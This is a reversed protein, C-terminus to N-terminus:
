FCSTGTRSTGASDLGLSGEGCDNQARILYFFTEGADPNDKDVAFTDAPDDSEVCVATDFDGAATGAFGRTRLVDYSVGNAGAPAGWTLISLGQWEVGSVTNPIGSGGAGTCGPLYGLRSLTSWGDMWNDGPAFAGKFGAAEFFGDNPTARNTTLLASGDAPRPDISTIPNPVTPSPNTTRSLTRIPLASACTRYVNDLAANSFLGNDYHVKGTDGGFATADGVPVAGGNGFCWFENDQLELQFASAPGTQFADITYPTIARQGSTLNDTGTTSGGEILIPAGGFDLFASNYWRGGANDRFHLASNRSADTFAKQGHGIMTANYFTPIAFPLSGDPSNGGDQEAGKDSKDAGPTGQMVFIYQGKGRFGEDYDISDDGPAIVAVNKVGVTGGFFEVGDDKNQFVEVHRIDTERGVAGLTLGNIENDASLNFGGYRISIYSLSGSDDDDDGGNGYLGLGGAATLGEIQVERAANAGGATNNAVYTEGLVILGGWQATLGLANLATDYPPTGANGRVNDDFLDTFVIPADFTGQADIKSGRTIVLTGPDNADPASEGEGRIVTGPEITLTAGNTVYVVETLVYDNDATWTRSTTINGAVQVTGTPFYGLRDMNTWGKAWNSDGFAGKYSAPEFFGDNPAVRNTALLPSGAAPRPDLTTVPNPVTPSPNTTRNLARIPLATACSRYVNDLSGTTFLGNNYHVKGTDGGFATADGVPVAGGNGFCWFENDQLELQFASAPGTQFADITYATIARQGSTLNDTGTTSGGEILIPAGGFDLFASNYYRGGANDRFHLATNRSADTFAKQGHGIMTVNYFTPIAFPLSGDPSNGGDQEAGKDSKDAGPTGQMVFIFQGKGRFGEDYDISDDGPAFVVINKVGVTGGFFEVGDDKNQFVEIHDIDTQRGVAGLTLGNIENDASLNFGGYRISVYRLVGSDSDDDGGNGYLGLGGAATLGEIQVERAANAGGATNNAVYTEGLVILGGWQATLGLANLQSDYPPTGTSDGINDDLLDTFVIPNEATGLANIKSGRTIVLTGPDNADPASEGEGRIVTGPEITLTAGNTVYIVQTLIYENNATWTTSTTINSTVQVTGSSSGPLYGLRDLNTWGSLWLDGESFAGKYPAPKFFGDAPPTRDTTLLPSGPGPRPDITTVPDPVTPSPAATRQLSRIPLPDTCPLYANQLSGNSFLGNDYHVKGTDGGFATADGVPVAGGNGFCWFENDQLELQFASAPGTQFADITYPTIARQGSTLNDTGTTSGGEILIPAGGFDLFASNYYRGGANDRFHLATNRAKDTYSKQGHGVMTVNYFTPIAFPLSGDPSNGGDQEAGKDSKDAGPTGQMVFIFQGKGRFGEDYDISDDGPAVVAIHQVGVTGGFFEVGDDKNQFVEVHNINTERGVAGLTLGNIENDASLNFGGYRISVYSITGSDDDDDGGNGYLGLGGAATLGEIQVERAANPGAATNNAVYTEGLVILGGWQATLGLANLASDYPPTGANGGVNDDLLDTFVIPNDRNGFAQIKSGRTIVLTGPDNADPASEGEGRIVTGPEITLTAGNTVYIVDTLIYENDATWTESVTVDATVLITAAFASPVALGLACAVAAIRGAAKLFTGRM